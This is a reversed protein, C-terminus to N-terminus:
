RSPGTIDDEPRGPQQRSSSDLRPSEAAPITAPASIKLKPLLLAGPPENSATTPSVTVLAALVVFVGQSAM